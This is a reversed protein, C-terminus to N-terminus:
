GKLEDRIKQLKEAKVTQKQISEAVIRELESVVVCVKGGIKCTLRPHQGLSRMKYITSVAFPCKKNLRERDNLPILELNEM